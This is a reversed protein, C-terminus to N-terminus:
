PAGIQAAIPNTVVDTSAIIMSAILLVCIRVPRFALDSGRRWFSVFLPSYYKSLMSEGNGIIFYNCGETDSLTM